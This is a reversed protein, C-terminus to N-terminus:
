ADTTCWALKCPGHSGVAFSAGSPMYTLHGVWASRLGSRARQVSAEKEL